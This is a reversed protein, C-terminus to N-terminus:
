KADETTIAVFIDELNTREMNLERLPWSHESALGFISERPDVAAACECVFRSWEGDTSGAVGCIGPLASLAARMDDRPGQLEVVVRAMGGLSGALNRPTDAAVIKGDRMILVRECIMEVESLVHSSLLVTHDAALGRILNRAQRVQNPDLGITPEDLLLVAPDNLLCDALGVRQRYGKSLHGIIKRRVRVLGCTELMLGMRERLAAGSLGKLRGRYALYEVVRLDRHLPISEPLYGVRRRVELSDDLVDYGAVTVYGGTPPLFGSLIRMTTTKGAGNPGLLGVIEGQRVEFSLDDVAALNGFRKTLHEAKIM